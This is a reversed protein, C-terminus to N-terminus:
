GQESHFSFPNTISEESDVRETRQGQKERNREEQQQHPPPLLPSPRHNFTPLPFYINRRKGRGRVKVRAQIHDRYAMTKFYRILRIQLAANGLQLPSGSVRGTYSTNRNSSFPRNQICLHKSPCPPSSFIPPAQKTVQTSM